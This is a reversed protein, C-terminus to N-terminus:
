GEASVTTVIAKDGLKRFIMRLGHGRTVFVDSYGNLPTARSLDRVDSKVTDVTRQIRAQDNRHMSSIINFATNSVEVDPAIQAEAMNSGIM